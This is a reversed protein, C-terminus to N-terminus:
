HLWHHLFVHFIPTNPYKMNHFYSLEDDDNTDEGIASKPHTEGGKLIHNKKSMFGLKKIRIHM